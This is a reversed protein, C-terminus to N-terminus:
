MTVVHLCCKFLLVYCMVLSSNRVHGQNRLITMLLSVGVPSRSLLVPLLCMLLKPNTPSYGCLAEQNKRQTRQLVGTQCRFLYMYSATYYTAAHTRSIHKYLHVMASELAREVNGKWMRIDADFGEGLRDLYALTRQHSLSLLLRQLRM